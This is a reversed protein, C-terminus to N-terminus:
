QRGGSAQWALNIKDGNHLGLAEITLDLNLIGGEGKKQATPNVANTVNLHKLVANVFLRLTNTKPEREPVSGGSQPEFVLTVDNSHGHTLDEM